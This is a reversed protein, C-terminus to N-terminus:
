LVIYSITLCLDIQTGLGLGAVPNLPYSNDAQTDLKAITLTGGTGVTVLFWGYRNLAVNKLAVVQTINVLPNYAAPIVATIAGVAASSEVTTGAAGLTLTVMPGAKAIRLPVNRTAVTAGSLVVNQNLQVLMPQGNVWIGNDTLFNIAKGYFNRRVTLPGTSAM